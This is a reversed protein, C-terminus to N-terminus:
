KVKLCFLLILSFVVAAIVSYFLSSFYTWKHYKSRSRRKQYRYAIIAMVIPAIFILYFTGISAMGSWEWYSATLAIVLLQGYTAYIFFLALTPPTIINERKMQRYMEIFYYIGILPIFLHIISGLIIERFTMPDAKVIVLTVFSNGCM